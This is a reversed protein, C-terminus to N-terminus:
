SKDTNMQAGDTAIGLQERMLKMGRHLLGRLSGNSIALQKSITAYDAGSLYRLTLVDRYENPLTKLVNLVENRQEDLELSRGPGPSDDTLTQLEARKSSLGRKKRSDRKASDILVGQAISNLWGRFMKPDDLSEIRKWARLLTEQVLDEARHADATQVYFRAFLGRATNRVLQEFAARDGARSRIVWMEEGNSTDNM